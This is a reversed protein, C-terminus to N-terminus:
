TRSHCVFLSVCKRAEVRSGPPGSAVAAVAAVAVSFVSIAQGLRAQDPGTLYHSYSYFGIALQGNELSSLSQLHFLDLHM